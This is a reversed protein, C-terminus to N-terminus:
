WGIGELLLAVGGVVAWLSISMLCLCTSVWRGLGSVIVGAGLPFPPEAGVGKTGTLV